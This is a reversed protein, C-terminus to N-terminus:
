KEEPEADQNGAEEGPRGVVALLEAPQGGGALLDAPLWVLSTKSCTINRLNLDGAKVHEPLRVAHYLTLHALLQQLVEVLRLQQAVRAAVKDGGGAGGLM